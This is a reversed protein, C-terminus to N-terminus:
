DSRFCSKDSRDTNLLFGQQAPADLVPDPLVM